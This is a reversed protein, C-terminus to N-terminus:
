EGSWERLMAKAAERGDAVANVVEKGGNICDGGAYIKPHSTRRTAEDVVIWGKDNVEIEKSLRAAHKEQGIAYVLWDSEFKELKGNNKNEVTLVLRGNSSEEVEKPVICEQLRVGHKRASELEHAYGPMEAETRRYLINVEPVGLMALERAIDIATNGGGIVLVQQVEDPVIFGSDTKIKTILETAGWRGSGTEGPIGPLKDKGLGAGIFVADFDRLLEQLQIDKGVTVGTKIGIGFQLLWEVEQLAETAQLKYPAIGTTNLGGPLNGVEFLVPEVGELTLYAACALSAPGAGILAVKKGTKKKPTFLKRGSQKEMKLARNTAYRQLRGIQIPRKDYDNYVCAGACLTEVPCVRATSVGLLNAEFITKAAGRINGTAIKKIFAPIDIGTPCAKICPADYCFLCRNAEIQAESDTYLPKADSFRTELRNESLKDM